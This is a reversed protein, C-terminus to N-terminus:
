GVIISPSVSRYRCAICSSHLQYGPQQQHGISGRVKTVHQVCAVKFAPTYKRRTASRNDGTKEGDYAPATLGEGQGRWGSWKIVLAPVRAKHLVWGFLTQWTLYVSCVGAIGVGQELGFNSYLAMTPVVAALLGAGVVLPIGKLLSIANDLLFKYALLLGIAGTVSALFFTAPAQQWSFSHGTVLFAAAVFLGGSLLLFGAKKVRSVSEKSDLLVLGFIFGPALLTTLLGVPPTLPLIVMNALCTAAGSIFCAKITAM